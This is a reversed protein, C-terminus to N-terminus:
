MINTYINIHRFVDQETQAMISTHINASNVVPGPYDTLTSKGPSAAESKKGPVRIGREWRQVSKKEVVM